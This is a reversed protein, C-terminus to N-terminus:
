FSGMGGGPLLMIKPFKSKGSHHPGMIVDYFSLHSGMVCYFKYRRMIYNAMNKTCNAM